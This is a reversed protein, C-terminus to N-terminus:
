GGGGGAGGGGAGRGGGGGGRFTGGGGGGFLGAGGGNTTTPVTSSITAVVVTDGPNLGSLIQTRLADAAGVTVARAQPQGNVMVQVVSGAGTTRVASTPVTLVGVVQNVIVSISASSGAHLSPNSGDLTVTVSFSAV